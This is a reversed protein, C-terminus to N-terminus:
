KNRQSGSPIVFINWMEFFIWMQTFIILFTYGLYFITKYTLHELCQTEAIKYIKVYQVYEAYKQM